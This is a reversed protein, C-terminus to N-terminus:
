VVELLVGLSDVIVDFSERAKEEDVGDANMSDFVLVGWKDGVGNMIPLALINRALPKGESCYTDLMPRPMFSQRCYKEKNEESSVMRISPLGEKSVGADSSWCFGALGEAKRGEDPCWFVTKTGKGTHGSRVVPVLWGSWPWSRRKWANQFGARSFFRSWNWDKHKFLTVRHNDNLDGAQGPFAIRQLIDIQAQVTRWALVDGKRSLIRGLIFAGLLVMFITLSHQDFKDLIGAVTPHKTKDVKDAYDIIAGLVPAGLGSVTVM